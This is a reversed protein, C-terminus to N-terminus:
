EHRPFCLRKYLLINLCLKLFPLPLHYLIQEEVIKLYQGPKNFLASYLNEYENALPAGEKFFLDDINQPLSKGKKLLSWYYPVGGM